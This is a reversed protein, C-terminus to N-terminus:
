FTPLSIAEVVARLGETPIRTYNETTKVYAHGLLEKLEFPTAGAQASWSAFTARSSHFHLREDLGAARVYKKFEKTVFDERFKQSEETMFVYPDSPTLSKLLSRVATSMPFIRSKDNKVRYQESSEITITGEEFNVHKWALDLIEGRRFGTLVAFIFVRRLSQDEVLSILQSFEEKTMYVPLKREQRIQRVRRFPNEKLYGWDIALEMASKLTRLDINVTTISVKQCRSEKFEEAQSSKLQRLMMDGHLDSFRDIVRKANELTKPALNTEVWSLYKQSFSRFSIDGAETESHEYSGAGDHRPLYLKTFKVIVYNEHLMVKLLDLKELKSLKNLFQEEAIELRGDIPNREILTELPKLAVIEDKFLFKGTNARLKSLCYTYTYVLDKDEFLNEPLMEWPMM